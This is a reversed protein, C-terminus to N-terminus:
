FPRCRVVEARALPEDREAGYLWGQAKLALPRAELRYHRGAQFHAYRLRLECVVRRPEGFLRSGQRSDYQYRVLLEHAGPTVQLDNSKDLRQGDLQQASIVDAPPTHLSIGALLPDVPAPPTACAGLLLALPAMILRRQSM